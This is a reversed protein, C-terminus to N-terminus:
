PHQRSECGCQRQAPVSPRRKGSSRWSAVVRSNSLPSFMMSTALMMSCRFRRMSCRYICRFASSSACFSPYISCTHAHLAQSYKSGNRSVESPTISDRGSRWGCDRIAPLRDPWPREAMNVPPGTRPRSRFRERPLLHESRLRHSWHATAEFSRKVKAVQRQVESQEIPLLPDRDLRNGSCPDAKSREVSAGRSGLEATEQPYPAAPFQCGSNWATLDGAKWSKVWGSFSGLVRSAGSSGVGGPSDGM